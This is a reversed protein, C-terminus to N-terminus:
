EGNRAYRPLSKAYSQIAREFAALTRTKARNRYAARKDIGKISVVGLVPWWQHGDAEVKGIERGHVLLPRKLALPELRAKFDSIFEHAQDDDQATDRWGSVQKAKDNIPRRREHRGPLLGAPYDGRLWSPGENINRLCGASLPRLTLRFLKNGLRQHNAVNSVYFSTPLAGRPLKLIRV